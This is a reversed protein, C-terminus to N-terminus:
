ESITWSLQWNECNYDIEEYPTVMMELTGTDTTGCSKPKLLGMVQTSGSSLVCHQDFDVENLCGADWRVLMRLSLVM